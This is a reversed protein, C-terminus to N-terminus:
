KIQLIELDLGCGHLVTTKNLQHDFLLNNLNDEWKNMICLFAFLKYITRLVNFKFSFSLAIHAIYIRQKFNNKLIQKVRIKQLNVHINLKELNTISHQSWLFIMICLWTTTLSYDLLQEITLFLLSQLYWVTFVYEGISLFFLM